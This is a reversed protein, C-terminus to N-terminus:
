EQYVLVKAARLVRDHMKYGSQWVVGVTGSKKDDSPRPITSMAEHSNPDFEDGEATEIRQIGKGAMLKHLVRETAQVGELLSKLYGLAKDAPVDAGPQFVNAPIAKQASELNDAVELLSKAFGQVAFVKLNETERAQRARLNEMEAYARQLSDKNKAVDEQAKTLLQQLEEVTAMEEDMTAQRSRAAQETEDSSSSSGSAQQDRDAAAKGAADAAAEGEKSAYLRTGFVSQSPWANVTAWPLRAAAVQTVAPLWITSTQSAQGASASCAVVARQATRLLM